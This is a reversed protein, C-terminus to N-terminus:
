VEKEQYIKLHEKLINIQEEYKNCLKETLNNQRLLLENYEKLKSEYYEVQTDYWSRDIYHEHQLICERIKPRIEKYLKWLLLIEDNYEM